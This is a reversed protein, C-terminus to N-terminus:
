LMLRRMMIVVAKILLFCIGGTMIETHFNIDAIIGTM